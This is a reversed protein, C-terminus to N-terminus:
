QMKCEDQYQAGPNNNGFGKNTNESIKRKKYKKDSRIQSNDVSENMRKKESQKKELERQKQQAVTEIIVNRARRGATDREVTKEIEQRYINYLREIGINYCAFLRYFGEDYNQSINSFLPHTTPEPSSFAELLEITLKWLAEVFESLLLNMRARKSQVSSVREKLDDITGLYKGINQKVYKVVDDFYMNIAEHVNMNNCLNDGPALIVVNPQPLNCGIPISKKFESRIDIADYNLWKDEVFSHFIKELNQIQQNIFM